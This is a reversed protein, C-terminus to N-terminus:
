AQLFSMFSTFIKLGLQRTGERELGWQGQGRPPRRITPAFIAWSMSAKSPTSTDYSSSTGSMPSPGEKRMRSSTPAQGSYREM